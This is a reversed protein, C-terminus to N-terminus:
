QLLHSGVGPKRERGEGASEGREDEEIDGRGNIEGEREMDADEQM